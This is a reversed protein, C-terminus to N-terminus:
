LFAILLSYGPSRGGFYGNLSGLSILKALDMYTQSDNTLLANQNFFYFLMRFVLGFLVLIFIAYKQFLKNM